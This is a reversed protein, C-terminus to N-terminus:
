IEKIISLFSISVKTSPERYKYDLILSKITPKPYSPERIIKQKTLQAKPIINIIYKTLNSEPTPQSTQNHIKSIISM